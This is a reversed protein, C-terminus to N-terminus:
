PNTKIPQKGKKCCLYHTRTNYDNDRCYEILKDLTVYGDPSSSWLKNNVELEDKLYKIDDALKVIEETNM